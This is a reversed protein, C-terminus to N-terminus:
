NEFFKVPSLQLQHCTHDIVSRMSNLQFNDESIPFALHRMGFNFLTEELEVYDEIVADFNEEIRTLRGYLAKADRLARFEEITIDLKPRPGYSRLSFKM